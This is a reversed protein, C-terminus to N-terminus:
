SKTVRAAKVKREKGQSRWADFAFIGAAGWIFAFCLQHATTFAEGDAVGVFFQITPGLFQLFGLTGLSLQRAAIAFALLPAVTAPGAFLLLSVKGPDGSMIGTDTTNILWCLYIAAFPILILTEVFLGPMAGVDARKRLLGYLTFTVALALGAYPITGGYIVLLIVGVAALGVALKQAKRLREKLLFVGAMVTFLPNIYYALSTEFVRGAQVTAIYMYWNFGILVATAVLTVLTKPTTLARKVDGWQHRFHIILIGVPVSWLVRHTLIEESSISRAFIFYVPLLGWLSYALLAAIVGQQTKDGSSSPQPAPDTM